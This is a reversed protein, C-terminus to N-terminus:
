RVLMVQRNLNRHDTTPGQNSILQLPTLLLLSYRGLVAESWLIQGACIRGSKKRPNPSSTGLLTNYRQLCISIISNESLEFEFLCQPCRGM